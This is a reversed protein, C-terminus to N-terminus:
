WAFIPVRGVSGLDLDYPLCKTLILWSKDIGAFASNGGTLMGPVSMTSTPRRIYTIFPLTERPPSPQNGLFLIPLDSRSSGAHARVMPTNQDTPIWM